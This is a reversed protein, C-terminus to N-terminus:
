QSNICSCISKGRTVSSCSRTDERSWVTCQCFHDENAIGDRQDSSIEGDLVGPDKELKNSFDETLSGAEPKNSLSGNYITSYNTQVFQSPFHELNLSRISTLEMLQEDDSHSLMIEPSLNAASTVEMLQENDSDTDSEEQIDYEFEFSENDQQGELITGLYSLGSSNDQVADSINPFVHSITTEYTKDKSFLIGGATAKM